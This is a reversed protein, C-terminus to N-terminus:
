RDVRSGSISKASGFVSASTGSLGSQSDAILPGGSVWVWFNSFKRGFRSTWPVHEGVMGQRNGVVIPRQGEEVAQLLNEADEPKHQGDADITMHGLEGGTNSCGELLRGASVVGGGVGTGVFLCVLDNVGQGAGYLWEGYTAARVDNTVVVPLAIADELRTRLPVNHWGLNPSFRVVGTDKGIQGAMGIGLAQASKGAEGLCKNVCEIINTIVGDPGKEPQTLKRHSTLIHGTADVLSIEIKTGGVDVGLTLTKDVPKNGM